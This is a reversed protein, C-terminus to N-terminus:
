SVPVLERRCIDVCTCAPAPDPAAMITIVSVVIGLGTADLAAFEQDHPTMLLMLLLIEEDCPFPRRNRWGARARQVAPDCHVPWALDCAVADQSALEQRVTSLHMEAWCRLQEVSPFDPLPERVRM